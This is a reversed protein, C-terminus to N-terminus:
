TGGGSHWIDAVTRRPRDDDNPPSMLYPRITAGLTIRRNPNDFTITVDFAQFLDALEGETVHTLAPRLDPLADLLALIQDPHRGAPRQIKLADIADTVARKRASLEEIRQTALAVV